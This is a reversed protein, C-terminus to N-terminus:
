PEFHRSRKLIGAVYHIAEVQEVAVHIPPHDENVSEFRYFGDQLQAFVKIMKRGDVTKVLVEEYQVAPQNPEIVVFEGHKIRPSMSDGVVRLGYADPDDRQIKLFGAGHGAPYGEEEFYGNNGLQATGVVPVSGRKVTWEDMDTNNNQSSEITLGDTKLAQPTDSSFTSGHALWEAPVNLARAIDPLRKPYQTKGSTIKQIAVQSIPIGSLRSVLESLQRQKLNRAQMAANIRDALTPLNDTNM